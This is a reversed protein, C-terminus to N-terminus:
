VAIGDYYSRIKRMGKKEYRSVMAQTMHLKQATESQTLDEFYRYQIIKQEDHNLTSIGDHLTMQEELSLGEPNPITEYFSRDEENAKDDLSMMLYSGSVVIQSVIVPDMELFIAVEDYSPIKNLKQALTSRTMEIKQYTRLIDKSLKISQNKYVMSYMEGFIYDYAYTSFKSLGNDKYNELAKMIGLAGAQYLDEYDVNYFRKAIKKILWENEFVIDYNTM